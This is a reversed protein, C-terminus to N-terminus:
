FYFHCKMWNLEKNKFFSLQRFETTTVSFKLGCWGKFVIVYIATSINANPKADLM